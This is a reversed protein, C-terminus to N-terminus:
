TIHRKGPLIEIPVRVSISQGTTSVPQSRYIEPLSTIQIKLVRLFTQQLLLIKVKSDSETATPLLLKPQVQVQLRPFTSPFLEELNLFQVVFKPFNLFGIEVLPQTGNKGCIM